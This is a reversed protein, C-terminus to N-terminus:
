AKQIHAVLAAKIAPWDAEKFLRANREVVATFGLTALFDATLVFGLRANIDGLKLTAPEPERRVDAPGVVNGSTTVVAMGTTQALALADVARAKAEAAQAFNAAALEDAQRKVDAAAQAEAAAQAARQQEALAQQARHLEAQQAELEARQAALRAAEQRQAEREAAVREAEAEAQVAAAHLERLKELVEAKVRTATISFEEMAAESTDVPTLAQELSSIHASTSGIASTVYARIMGITNEHKAVRAAELLRKAEREAERRAEDAKIQADIPDELAKIQDTIRKAEGDIQKGFEIAPAKLEKRKAELGTRLSVLELRALRADKDGATTTLDYVRGKYKTALVALAAETRSYAVIVQGDGTIEARDIVESAVADAEATTNANM